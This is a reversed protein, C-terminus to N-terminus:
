NIKARRSIWVFSEGEASYNGFSELRMLVFVGLFIMTWMAMLASPKM